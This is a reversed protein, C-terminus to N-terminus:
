AIKCVVVTVDDLIIKNQSGVIRAMIRDMLNKETIESEEKLSDIIDQLVSKNVDTVAGDSILVVFNGKNVPKEIASYKISSVLGMPMNDQKIESVEDNEIIYSPAAGLKIFELINDRENIACMDLTASTEGSEKLKVLKNIIDLIEQKNFGSAGMKEIMSIVTESVEKSKVGSGMGDSIAIIKSNDKLETVIYSDGSVMSDAKRVQKVVAKVVYKSSPILKIRSKETKSSNLVLKISMNTGMVDSVIKQIERKAKDIDVLIDTIFEYQKTSETNEYSDEYVVYGMYKLEERIRKQEPTDTKVPKDDRAINKILSSITKYEEALKKNSENEKSKVIRMLKINSYIDVINELLEQQLECDIPLMEKTIPKNEELRKAIHDSVIELEDGSLCNLKNKCSICENKKYDELYKKIVTKTEEITEETVPTTIHALNEFVESMANLREKIDSGAGLLNEYGRKLGNTNTGFLDELKLILKKPMVLLVASAVLLEALKSWIILDRTYVYSLVLNGVIFAGVVIYKNYRNLIGAIFGSFAFATIILSTQGTAITYILGVLVGTATGVMWDNKWSIIMIITMIVVNAINFGLISFKYFPILLLSLVIGFSIIEEKSFVIKKTINLLMSIGYTFVSYFSVTLIAHTIAQTVSFSTTKYILCTIINSIVTATALKIMTIYKKSYGEIEIISVFVTYLVYTLGYNVFMSVDAKFILYCVLTVVLPLILPINFVTAVGLMVVGFPSVDMFSTMCTLALVIVYPITKYDFISKLTGIVQKISNQKINVREDVVLDEEFIMHVGRVKKCM